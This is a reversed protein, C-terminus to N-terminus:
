AKGNGNDFCIFDSHSYKLQKERFINLSYKLPSKEIEFNRFSSRPNFNFFSSAFIKNKNNGILVVHRSMIIYKRQGYVRNAAGLRFMTKLFTDRMCM